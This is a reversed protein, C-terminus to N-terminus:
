NVELPPSGRAHSVQEVLRSWARVPAVSTTAVVLVPLREGTARQLTLEGEHFPGSEEVMARM